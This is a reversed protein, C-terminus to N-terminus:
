NGGGSQRRFTMTVPQGQLQYASQLQFGDATEQYQFPQGTSPDPYTALGDRGSQLATLGASLMAHQVVVTRAKNMMMEMGSWLEKLLPNTDQAAQLRVLWAQYEAEPQTLVSAFEHEFESVQRRMESDGAGTSGSMAEKSLSLNAEQEIARYFNEEYRADNLAKILRDSEAGVFRAANRAIFDDALGQIAIEVLFGLLASQQAVNHGVQLTALVDSAAAAADEARCHAASWTATRALDRCRKLNPLLATVFGDSTTPGLGWDCNTQSAADLMLDVIPAVKQCLQAVQDTDVEAKWDGLVKKEEETLADYLAFAKRYFDAANTATVAPPAPTASPEEIRPPL